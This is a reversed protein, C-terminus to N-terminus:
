EGCPCAIVMTSVGLTFALLLPSTHYEPPLSSLSVYGLSLVLWWAIFTLLSIALVVLAFSGAIKDALEQIPAKSMQADEMLRIIQKLVSDEGIGTVSVVMLGETAISGGIVRDGVYKHVPMSEGTILAENVFGEGSVVVGDAPVKSGRVVKLRDGVQVLEALIIEEVEVEEGKDGVPHKTLLVAKKPQFDLLKTLASSTKRKAIHELFKGLLIFSLLMSSTMFFDSYSPVNGEMAISRALSFVAFVYAATTGMAVLLSMGYSGGKLGKYAERYFRWGCYFQVPTSLLFILLDRLNLGPLLFPDTMYSPLTLMSLLTTPITFTIAFKLYSRLEEVQSGNGHPGPLCGSGGSSGDGGRSLLEARYGMGELAKIIDRLGVLESEYRVKV